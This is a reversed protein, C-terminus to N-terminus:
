VTEQNQNSARGQVHHCSQSGPEGPLARRSSAAARRSVSAPRGPSHPPQKEFTSSIFCLANGVPAPAHEFTSVLPSTPVTM